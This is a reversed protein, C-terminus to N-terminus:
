KSSGVKFRQFDEFIPSPGLTGRIRELLIEYRKIVPEIALSIRFLENIKHAIQESQGEFKQFEYANLLHQHNEILQQREVSKVIEPNNFFTFIALFSLEFTDLDATSLVQKVEEVLQGTEGHPVNTLHQKFIRANEESLAPGCGSAMTILHFTAMGPAFVACREELSLTKFGPVEKILKSVIHAATEINDKLAKLVDERSQCVTKVGPAHLKCFERYSEFVQIMDQCQKINNENLLNNPQQISQQQQQQQQQEIITKPSDPFSRKFKRTGVKMGVKACKDFRCKACAFRWVKGNSCVIANRTLESDEFCMGFGTKCKFNITGHNVNNRYFSGCASCAMVGNRLKVDGNSNEINCVLCKM